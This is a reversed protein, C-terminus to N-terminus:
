KHVYDCKSPPFGHDTNVGQIGHSQGDGIDTWIVEQVQSQLNYGGAM